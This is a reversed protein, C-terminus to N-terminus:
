RSELADPGDARDPLLRVVRPAVDALGKLHLTTQTEPLGVEPWSVGVRLLGDRPLDGVWYHPESTFHDDGGSSAGGGAEAVGTRDGVGVVLRLGM